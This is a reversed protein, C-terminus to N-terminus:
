GVDNIRKRGSSVQNTRIYGMYRYEAIKQKVTNM